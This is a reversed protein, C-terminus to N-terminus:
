YLVDVFILISYLSSLQLKERPLSFDCMQRHAIETFQEKRISLLKLIKPNQTKKKPPSHKNKPNKKAHKSPKPAKKTNM